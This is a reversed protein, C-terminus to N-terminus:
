KIRRIEVLAMLAIPCQYIDIIVSHPERQSSMGGFGDTFTLKEKRIWQATDLNSLKM